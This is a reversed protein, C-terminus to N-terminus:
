RDGRESFLKNLEEATLKHVLQKIKKKDGALAAVIESAYDYVNTGYPLAFLLVLRVADYKWLVERRLAAAAFIPKTGHYEYPHPIALGNGAETSSLRERKLVQETLDEGTQEHIKSCMFVLIEERDTLACDPFVLEETWLLMERERSEMHRKMDDRVSTIFQEDLRLDTMIVPVPYKKELPITTLICEVQDWPIEDLDDRGHLLIDEKAFRCLETLRWELLKATGRGTACVVVIKKRKQKKKLRECALAFHLAIYSIENEDIVYEYKKNIVAGACQAIEYAERMQTQVTELMPNSQQMGYSLRAIMPQLHMALATMLEGDARFDIRMRLYVEELIDMVLTYIEPRIVDQDGLIRKGLLHILIYTKETDPLSVSFRRGLEGCIEEMAEREKQIDTRDSLDPATNLQKGEQMRHIAIVVHAILNDRNIDDMILDHHCIAEKVIEGVEDMEPFRGLDLYQRYLLRRKVEPGVIRSGYKPRSELMLGQQALRKKVIPILRDLTMRSVYMEESLDEIKIYDESELLRRILYSLREERIDEDIETGSSKIRFM